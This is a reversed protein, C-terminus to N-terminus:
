LLGGSEASGIGFGDMWGYMNVRRILKKICIEEGNLFINIKCGVPLLEIELHVGNYRHDQVARLHCNLM